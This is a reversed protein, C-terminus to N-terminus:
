GARGQAEGGPGDGVEGGPGDGVKGEPGDGVKGEPGSRRARLISLQLEMASERRRQEAQARRVRQIMLLYGGGIMVLALAGVTGVIM